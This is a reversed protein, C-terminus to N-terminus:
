ACAHLLQERCTPADVKKDKRLQRPFTFWVLHVQRDQGNSKELGMDHHHHQLHLSIRGQDAICACRRAM